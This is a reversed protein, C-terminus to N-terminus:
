GTRATSVAAAAMFSIWVQRPSQQRARYDCTHHTRGHFRRHRQADGRARTCARAKMRTSTRPPEACRIKEHSGFEHVFDCFDMHEQRLKCVIGSLAADHKADRIISPM